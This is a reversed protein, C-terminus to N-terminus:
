FVHKFKEPLKARTNVLSKGDLETLQMRFTSFFSEWAPRMATQDKRLQATAFRTLLLQIARARQEVFENLGNLFLARTFLELQFNAEKLQKTADHVKQQAQTTQAGRKLNTEVEVEFKHLVGLKFDATSHLLTRQVLAQKFGVVLGWQVHVPDILWEEIVIAEVQSADRWQELPLNIPSTTGAALLVQRHMDSVAAFYARSALALKIATTHMAALIGELRTISDMTRQVVDEAHEPLLTMRLANRFREQSEGILVSTALTKKGVEWEGIPQLLFDRVLLDAQFFDNGLLHEVYAALGKARDLLFSETTKVLPSKDPLDLQLLGPYRQLLQARVLEFDSYRRRTEGHSTKILFTYPPNPSALTRALQMPDSVSVLQLRDLGTLWKAHEQWFTKTEIQQNRSEIHQTQTSPPLLIDEEEEDDEDSNKKLPTSVPLAVLDDKLANHSAFRTKSPSLTTAQHSFVDKNTPM